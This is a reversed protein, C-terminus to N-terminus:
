EAIRMKCYGYGADILSCGSFGFLGFLGSLGINEHTDWEDV